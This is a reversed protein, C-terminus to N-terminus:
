AENGMAQWGDRAPRAFMELKVAAPFAKEIWRYVCEPKVSHGERVERFMSSVRDAPAPPSVNGKTGVLLLEHQGRFWYGMGIREKDWVAGAKYKFGWASMVALAEVLLPMTAWLFLVCDAATAPAKDCIEAVTLTPYQNEIQRNESECHDYSWPPDALVLSPPETQAREQVGSLTAARDEFALRQAQVQPIEWSDGEAHSELWDRWDAQLAKFEGLADLVQHAIRHLHEFDRPYRRGTGVALACGKVPLYAEWERTVPDALYGKARGVSEETEAVTWGKDLLTGVMGPWLSLPLAHIAELHKAKDLLASLTTVQTVVEAVEAADMLQLVYVHSRGISRAYERVGGIKGRGRKTDRIVCKLAHLGIELPTLEGQTNDTVLAMYAQEDDLERVWCPVESLGARRAAEYRQHGSVIQYGDGLPRVRLAHEPLMAGGLQARIGEVVDERFAVRPNRPHPVIRDLAITELKSM